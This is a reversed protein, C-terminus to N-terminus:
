THRSSELCRWMEEIPNVDPSYPPLYLLLVGTDDCMQRIKDLCHFSANDMILVSIAAPWRGCYPMLEEVLNVFIEIDTSGAYM